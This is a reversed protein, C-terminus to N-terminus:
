FWQECDLADETKYSELFHKTRLVPKLRFCGAALGAAQLRSESSRKKNFDIASSAVGSGSVM